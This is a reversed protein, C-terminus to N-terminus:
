SGLKVIVNSQLRCACLNQTSLHSIITCQNLHGSVAPVYLNLSVPVPLVGQSGSHLEEAGLLQEGRKRM